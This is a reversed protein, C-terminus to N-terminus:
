FPARPDDHASGPPVARKEREFLDHEPERRSGGSIADTAREPLGATANPRREIVRAMGLAASAPRAGDQVEPGPLGPPADDTRRDHDLQLHPGLDDTGRPALNGAGPNRNTSM